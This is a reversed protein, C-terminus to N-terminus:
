HSSVCHMMRDNDTKEQTRNIETNITTSVCSCVKVFMCSCEGWVSPQMVWLNYAAAVLVYLLIPGFVVVCRQYCFGKTLEARFWEAHVAGSYVYIYLYQVKPISYIIQIYTLTPSLMPRNRLVPLLLTSPSPLTLNHPYISSM